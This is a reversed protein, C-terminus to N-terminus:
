VRSGDRYLEMLKDATAYLPTPAAPYQLLRTVRNQYETLAM